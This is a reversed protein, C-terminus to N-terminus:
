RAVVGIEDYVAEILEAGILDQDSGAGAALAFDALQKVRRPIGESLEYLQSVADRTFVPERRGAVALSATLFGRTDDLNWPLIDIRLEAQELLRLGLKQARSPQAALVVTLRQDTPTELHTLRELYDRVETAAEDADDIVAVTTLEQLRHEALVDVVRRWLPFAAEHAKPNVGWQAALSWLLEQASAGAASASATMVGQRRLERAFISLLMSKGVGSEGLLMGTRRRDDVLFHLRALAEEHSLGQFFFRPDLGGRFPSENLAWYAHYM